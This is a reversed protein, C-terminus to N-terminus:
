AEDDGPVEEGDDQDTLDGDEDPEDYPLVERPGSGTYPGVVGLAELANMLGAAKSYGISMKRQLLSTSAKNEQRVIRIAAQVDPDDEQYDTADDGDGDGDDGDEGEDDGIEPDEDDDEIPPEDDDEAEDEDIVPKARGRLLDREQVDRFFFELYTSYMNKFLNKIKSFLADDISFTKSMKYTLVGDKMTFRIYADPSTYGQEEVNELMSMQVDLGGAPKITLTIPYGDNRFRYVLDHEDCLGQLKKKYAEYKSIESM